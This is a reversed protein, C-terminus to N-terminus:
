NDEWLVVDLYYKMSPDLVSYSGEANKYVLDKGILVNVSQQASSASIKLPAIFEIAQIEKVPTKALATIIKRQNLSLESIDHSIISRQAKVYAHWTKNVQEVSPVHNEEWLLQCLVNVYFPHLATLQLIQKLCDQSLAKKWKMDALHQLHQAYVDKNMREINIIQCLKYLPRGQDGFMQKLLRRNSGSFVYAINESCRWYM